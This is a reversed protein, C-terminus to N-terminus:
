LKMKKEHKCCEGSCNYSCIQQIYKDWNFVSPGLSAITWSLSKATTHFHCVNLLFQVDFKSRKGPWCCASYFGRTSVPLLRQLEWDAMCGHPHVASAVCHVAGLMKPANHELNECESMDVFHGVWKSSRTLFFLLAIVRSIFCTSLYESFM